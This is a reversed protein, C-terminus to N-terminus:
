FSPEGFRNAFSDSDAFLPVINGIPIFYWWGRRNSDHCRRIYLAIQTPIFGWIVIAPIFQLFGSDAFVVAALIASGLHAVQFFWYERVSARSKYNFTNAVSHKVSELFSKRSPPPLVDPLQEGKLVKNTTWYKGNWFQYADPTEPADYWGAPAKGDPKKM